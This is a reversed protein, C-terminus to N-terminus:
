KGRYAAIPMRWDRGFARHTVRVGPPAQRRKYENNDILHIIQKVLAADFDAEVIAEPSQHEEVYRAIIPDLIDYPPLADQDTQDERLEASPPRDIIVRPIVEQEQNRFEALRYVWTKLVDKLVAYGGAMDGYLTAYGTAMESKNGTTLVLKHERNSIAMLILGRVRAQMNEECVDPESHDLRPETISLLTEYAPEIAIESYKVGFNDACAKAGERSLDSTFRSPMFVAEVCDAGLADVAVALTLASDIGGSLGVIVNEFSTKRVYDRTGLVLAQYLAAEKSLPAAIVGPLVDGGPVMEVIALEEAFSVCHQVCEGNRDVTLSGGDFVLEDQGGVLNVYVIPIPGEAQQRDNITQIRKDAKQRHFPSAHLGLIIEAGEAYADGVPGPHWLDECIIIGCKVGKIEVICPHKDPTFYRKEDFVGYNPLHRKYYRIVKDRGNIVSAANYLKGGERWPHGVIMTIDLEEKCLSTLANEVQILLSERFVLDEIPYGTLSFEPFVIVDASLDNQARKAAEIIKQRNTEVDALIYNQQGIAIRLNESM